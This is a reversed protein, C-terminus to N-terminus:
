RNDKPKQATVPPKATTAAIRAIDKQLDAIARRRDDLIGEHKKQTDKIQNIQRQVNRLQSANDGPISPLWGTLTGIIWSLMAFMLANPLWNWVSWAHWGHHIVSHHHEFAGTTKSPKVAPQEATSQGSNTEM